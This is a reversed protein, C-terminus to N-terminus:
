GSAKIHHGFSHPKICCMSTLPHSIIPCSQFCYKVLYKCSFHLSSWSIVIICCYPTFSISKKRDNCQLLRRFPHYLLRTFDCICDHFYVQFCVRADKKHWDHYYFLAHRSALCSRIWTLFMSKNGTGDHIWVAGEEPVGDWHSRLM